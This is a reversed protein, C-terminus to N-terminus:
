LSNQPIATPVQSSCSLTTHLRTVKKSSEAAQGFFAVFNDNKLHEGDSTKRKKGPQNPKGHQAPISFFPIKKGLARQNEALNM